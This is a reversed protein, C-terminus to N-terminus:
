WLRWERATFHTEHGKVIEALSIASGNKAVYELYIDRLSEYALVAQIHPSIQRVSDHGHSRGNGRGFLGNPPAGGYQQSYLQARTSYLQARILDRFHQGLSYATVEGSGVVVVVHEIPAREKGPVLRASACMKEHIVTSVIDGGIKGANFIFSSPLCATSDESFHCHALAVYEESCTQPVLPDNWSVTDLKIDHSIDVGNSFSPDTFLFVHEAGSAKCVDVLDQLNKGHAVSSLLCLTLICASKIM